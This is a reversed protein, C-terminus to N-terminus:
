TALSGGSDKFDVLNFVGFGEAELKRRGNLYSLEVIFGCEVVRAGLKKVLNCAALATGGTALLDDMILINDGEKISDVHVELKDTGYELAYEESETMSPLKGPKRLLVLGADLEHALVGGLIFGRSEIAVVKNIDMDKYRDVFEKVVEKLGEKDKLLTTIDRYVIGPKPFGPVSRIKSKISDEGLAKVKPIASVLLKKVNDANEEFVRLIEDWTVAEEDIKWCDYDTSMAVAAYAIGAENSLAAEPAISMNIVDAGWSRFMNSEARTSFRPGEITV